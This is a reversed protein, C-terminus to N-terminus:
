KGLSKINSFNYEDMECCSENVFLDIQDISRLHPSSEFNRVLTDVSMLQKKSIEIIHRVSKGCKFLETIYRAILGVFLTEKYIVFNNFIFECMSLMKGCFLFFIVQNFSLNQKKQKIIADSRTNQTGTILIM